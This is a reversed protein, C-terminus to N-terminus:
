EHLRRYEDMVSADVVVMGDHVLYESGMKRALSIIEREREGLPETPGEAEEYVERYSERRPEDGSVEQEPEQVSEPQGYRERVIESVREQFGEDERSPDSQGSYIEEVSKGIDKAKGRIFIGKTFAEINEVAHLIQALQDEISM